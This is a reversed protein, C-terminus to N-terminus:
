VEGTVTTNTHATASTKVCGTSAASAALGANLIASTGDFRCATCGIKGGSAVTVPKLFRCRSFLVSATADLTVTNQFEVGDVTGTSKFTVPGIVMPQNLGFVDVHANLVAGRYTGKGLVGVSPFAAGPPQPAIQQLLSFQVERARDNAAGLNDQTPPTIQVVPM